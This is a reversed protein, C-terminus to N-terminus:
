KAPEQSKTWAETIEAREKADKATGMAQIYEEKNKPVKVTSAGAGGAGGPSRKPDSAAVEFTDTIKAKIISAFDKRNGHEDVDDEGKENLLIVRIKGDVTETRYNGAEIERFFLNKQREAKAADAPLVVKLEEFYKQAEAKVNALTEKREIQSRFYNFETEKAKVAEKVKTPISEQLDLYVKHKKVMEDTVEPGAPTKATVIAEVLEVGQKDSDVGFKDKLDKELKTLTEKQAKKFGEDFKGTQLKAVRAKDLDLFRQLSDDKPSGDENFLSAVGAEDLNLTKSLFELLVKNM